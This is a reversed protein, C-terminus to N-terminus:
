AHDGAPLSRRVNSPLPPRGDLSIVRADHVMENVIVVYDRTQIFQANNNYATPLMPAGGSGFLICREALPRDVSGHIEGTGEQAVGSCTTVILVLMVRYCM